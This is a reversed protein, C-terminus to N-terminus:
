TRYKVLGKWLEVCVQNDAHEQKVQKEANVKFVLSDLKVVPVKYVQQELNDVKELPVLPVVWGQAAQNAEAELLDVSVQLVSAFCHPNWECTFNQPKIKKIYLKIIPPSFVIM